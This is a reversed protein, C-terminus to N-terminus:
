TSVQNELRMNCACIYEYYKVTQPFNEFTVNSMPNHVDLPLVGLSVRVFGTIQVSFNHAGYNKFFLKNRTKPLKMIRKLEM